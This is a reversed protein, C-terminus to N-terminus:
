DWISSVWCTPVALCLSAVVWCTPLRCKERGASIVGDGLVTLPSFCASLSVLQNFARQQHGASAKFYPASGDENTGPLLHRRHKSRSTASEPLVKPAPVQERTPTSEDATCHQPAATDPLFSGCQNKDLAGPLLPVVGRQTQLCVSGGKRNLVM